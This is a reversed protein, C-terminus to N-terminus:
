RDAEPVVRLKQNRRSRRSRRALNIMHARMLRRARTEREAPSLQGEPDVEREFRALFGDHARQTGSQPDEFSWRRLAAARGSSKDFTM